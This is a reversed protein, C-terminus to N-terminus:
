ENVNYKEYCKQFRGKNFIMIKYAEGDKMQFTAIIWKWTVEEIDELM